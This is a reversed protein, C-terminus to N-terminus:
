RGDGEVVVSCHARRMLSAVIAAARGGAPRAVVAVVCGTTAATFAIAPDFKPRRTVAVTVGPYKEGWRTVAEDLEAEHDAAWAPGAALVAVTTERAAAEQFARRLVDDADPPALLGALVPGRTEDVAALLTM